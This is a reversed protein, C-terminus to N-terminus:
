FWGSCATVSITAGNEGWSGTATCCERGLNLKSIKLKSKNPTKAAFSVSATFAILALLLSIKKM